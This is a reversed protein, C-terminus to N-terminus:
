AWNVSYKLPRDFPTTWNKTVTRVQERVMLNRTPTNAYNYDGPRRSLENWLLSCGVSPLFRGTVASCYFRCSFVIGRVEGGVSVLNAKVMDVEITRKSLVTLLIAPWTFLKRWAKRGVSVLGDIGHCSTSYVVANSQQLTFTAFLTNDKEGRRGCFGLEGQSGDWTMNLM